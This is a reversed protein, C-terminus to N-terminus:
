KALFFIWIWVDLCTVDIHLWRAVFALGDGYALSLYQALWNGYGVIGRCRALNFITNVAYNNWEVVFAAGFSEGPEYGVFSKLLTDDAIETGVVIGVGGFDFFYVRKM